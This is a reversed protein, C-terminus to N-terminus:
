VDMRFDLSTGNVCGASVHGTLRDYKMLTMEASTLPKLRCALGGFITRFFSQVRERKLPEDNDLPAFSFTTVTFPSLQFGIRFPQILGSGDVIL